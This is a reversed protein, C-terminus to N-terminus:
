KSGKQRRSTTDKKIFRRDTWNGSICKSCEEYTPANKFATLKLCEDCLSDSKVSERRALMRGKCRGFSSATSYEEDALKQLEVVAELRESTEM